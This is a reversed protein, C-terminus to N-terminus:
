TSLTHKTYICHCLVSHVGLVTLLQQLVTVIRDTYVVDDIIIM